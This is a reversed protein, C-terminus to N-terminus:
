SLSKDNTWLPHLQERELAAQSASEQKLKDVTETSFDSYPEITEM